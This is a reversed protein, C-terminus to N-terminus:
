VWFGTPDPHPRGDVLRILGVAARIVLWIGALLMILFGILIWITLAGLVMMALWYWFTRIQFRFHNKILDSAQDKRLYAFIVAILVTLGNSIGVLLLGYNIAALIRDGNQDRASFPADEAPHSPTESDSM